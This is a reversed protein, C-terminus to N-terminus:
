EISELPLKPSGNYMEIFNVAEILLDLKNNSPILSNATEIEPKHRQHYYLSIAEIKQAANFTIKLNSAIIDPLKKEMEVIKSVNSDVMEPVATEIKIESIKKKSIQQQQQQRKRKGIMFKLVALKNKQKMRSTLAKIRNDKLKSKKQLRRRLVPIKSILSTPVMNKQDMSVEATPNQVVESKRPGARKKRVKKMNSSFSVPSFTTNLEPLLTSCPVTPLNISMPNSSLMYYPEQPSTLFYPLNYSLNSSSCNNIPKQM